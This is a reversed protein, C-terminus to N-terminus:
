EKISLLPRLPALMGTLAATGTSLQNALGVFSRLDTRNTPTTFKVIADTIPQNIRYNDAAVSVLLTSKHNLLSGNPLM